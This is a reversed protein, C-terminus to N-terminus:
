IKKVLDKIFEPKIRLFDEFRVGYLSAFWGFNIEMYRARRFPLIDFLDDPMYAITERRDQKHIIMWSFSGSQEKAEDAQLIFEMFATRSGSVELLFDDMRIHNYGKKLEISCLDLLPAGIPDVAAIDGHQGYTNKNKKARTTAMAGSTSSRWFVDDRKGNTWWKSLTRSVEREFASGKGKTM